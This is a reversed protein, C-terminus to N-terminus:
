HSLLICHMANYMTSTVIVECTSVIPTCKGLHAALGSLYTQSALSIMFTVTVIYVHVYVTCTHTNM